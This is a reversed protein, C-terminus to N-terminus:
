QILPKLYNPLRAFYVAEHLRNMITNVYLTGLHCNDDHSGESISNSTTNLCLMVPKYIGLGLDCAFCLGMRQLSYM